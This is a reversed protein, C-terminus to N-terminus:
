LGTLMYCKCISINEQCLLCALAKFILHHICWGSLLAQAVVQAVDGRIKLGWALGRGGREGSVAAVIGQIRGEDRRVRILDEKETEHLQYLFKSLEPDAEMKGM